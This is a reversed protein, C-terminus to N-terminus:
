GTPEYGDLEGAYGLVGAEDWPGRSGPLKRM